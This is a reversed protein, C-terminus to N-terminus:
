IRSTKSPHSQELAHLRALRLPLPPHSYHFRAFLPDPTLTSASDRSLKILASSLHEIGGTLAAAYADAKWEARWSMWNALPALILGVPEICIMAVIIAVADSHPLGIWDTFWPQKVAV